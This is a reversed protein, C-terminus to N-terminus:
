KGQNKLMRCNDQKLVEPNVIWRPTEGKLISVVEECCKRRVEKLSVKSLFAAHPTIIVNDFYFLKHGHPLPEPFVVDLAAAAIRKEALAEALAEIDVCAGRATNILCASKKMKALTGANIINHTEENLCCHLSIYDAGLVEDLSAKRAGHQAMTTEDVYPDVAIVKVGFAQTKKSVMRGIRGLGILGLTQNSLREPRGCAEFDWKGQEVSRNLFSINRSLNLLFAMTHDSVEVTSYETVNTVVIGQSTAYELDVSNYGTAMFSIGKCGPMNDIIERDIPAYTVILADAAASIKLLASKDTCEFATFVIDLGSNNFVNDEESSDAARCDTQIVSLM